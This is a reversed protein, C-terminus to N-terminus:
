PAEGPVIFRSIKLTELEVRILLDGSALSSPLEVAAAGVASFDSLSVLITGDVVGDADADAGDGARAKWAGVGPRVWLLEAIAGDVRVVPADGALYAVPSGGPWPEELPAEFAAAAQLAQAGAGLDVFAWVSLEPVKGLQLAVSGDADQDAVVWDQRALVMGGAEPTHSVGMALM